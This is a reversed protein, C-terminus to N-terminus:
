KGSERTAFYFWGDDPFLLVNTEILEFSCYPGEADSVDVVDVFERDTRYGFFSSTQESPVVGEEPRNDVRRFAYKPNQVDSGPFVFRERGVEMRKGVLANAEQESTLGGRYKQVKTITWTGLIRAPSDAAVNVPRETTSRSNACGISCVLLVALVYRM